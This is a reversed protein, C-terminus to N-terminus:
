GAAFPHPGGAASRYSLHAARLPGESPGIINAALQAPFVAVPMLVGDVRYKLELGNGTPQLHVDSVGAKRAAALVVDVSRSAYEPDAPNLRALEEGLGSAMPQRM